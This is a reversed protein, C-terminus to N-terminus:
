DSSKTVDTRERNIKKKRKEPPVYPLPTFKQIKLPESMQKIIQKMAERSEAISKPDLAARACLREQLKEMARGLWWAALIIALGLILISFNPAEWHGASPEICGIGCSKAPRDFVMGVGYLTLSGGAVWLFILVYLLGAFMVAMIRRNGKDRAFKYAFPALLVYFGLAYLALHGWDVEVM